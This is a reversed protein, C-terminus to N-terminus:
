NSTNAALKGNQAREIFTKMCELSRSGVFHGNILVTPTSNVGIKIARKRQKIIMQRYKDKEIRSMLIDPNMGIESAIARLDQETIGSRSQRAYQANLMETFKGEQHAVYLAQIEPLSGGRLPFPKYVFQVEDQYKSVLTSMTKHFTKCHPCNPDFYEVITVPADAPGKRVDQFTVLSSPDQVPEKQANLQCAAGSSARQQAAQEDSAPALSGFYAFDAGIVVAALAALYVYITLDRKFLRTTMTTAPRQFERVLLLVQGAFLLGALVASLLCLACLAELVEVQVYVLYVSYAAGGVLVGLRGLHVWRRLRPGLGFTMLTLIAVTLYFGLGWTINSLGLFSGAGSTVVASCDFAMQESGLSSIGFCGRDFNRAKQISLHVVTLVGLLSLGFLGREWGPRYSEFRELFSGLFSM